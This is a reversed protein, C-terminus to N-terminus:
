KDEVVRGQVGAHALDHDARHVRAGQRLHFGTEFEQDRAKEVLHFALVLNLQDFGKGTGDGDLHDAVQKANGAIM